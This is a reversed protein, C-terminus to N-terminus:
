GGDVVLAGNAQPKQQGAAGGRSAVCNGEVEVGSRAAGIDVAVGDEGAVWIVAEAGGVQYQEAAGDLM